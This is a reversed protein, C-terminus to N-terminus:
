LMNELLSIEIEPIKQVQFDNTIFVDAKLYIATVIQIADPININYEARISSVIETIEDDLPKIELNPFNQLILKYKESIL